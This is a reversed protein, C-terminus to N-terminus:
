IIIIALHKVVIPKLINYSHFQGTDIYIYSCFRAPHLQTPTPPFRRLVLQMGERGRGGGGGGGRFFTQKSTSNNLLRIPGSATFYLKVGQLANVQCITSVWSSFLDDPVVSKASYVSIIHLKYITQSWHGRFIQM